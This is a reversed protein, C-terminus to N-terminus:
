KILGFITIWYTGVAPQTGKYGHVLLKNDYASCTFTTIEGLMIGNVLAHAEKVIGAREIVANGTSDFTVNESLYLVRYGSLDKLPKLSNTLSDNLASNKIEIESKTYYREDHDDSTKHTQFTNALNGNLSSNAAKLADIEDRHEKVIRADAVYGGSTTSDNNVVAAAPVAGTNEASITVNGYRYETEDAGRVGTVPMRCLYHPVNVVNM